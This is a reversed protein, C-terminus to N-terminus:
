LHVILTDLAEFSLSLETGWHLALWGSAKLRASTSEKLPNFSRTLLPSM